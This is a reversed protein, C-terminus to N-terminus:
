IIITKRLCPYSSWSNWSWMMTRRMRTRGPSASYSLSLLLTWSWTRRRRMRTRGPSVSYSLRLWSTWSWTRRRRM